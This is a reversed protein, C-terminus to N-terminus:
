VRVTVAEDPPLTDSGEVANEATVAAIGNVIEDNAWFPVFNIAVTDPEDDVDALVTGDNPSGTMDPPFVYVNM